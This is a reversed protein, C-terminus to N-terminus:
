ETMGIANLLRGADDGDRRYSHFTEEEAFTCLGSDLVNESRLGALRLQEVAVRPLDLNRGDPTVEIEPFERAFREALDASVEYHEVRVGPGIWAELRETRAGMDVLREIAKMALRAYLGRWGCHCAAILRAVPDFLLIPLCDATKVALLVGPRAAILADTDEFEYVADFPGVPGGLRNAADLDSAEAVVAVGDAHVQRGGVLSWPRDAGNLLREFERRAKEVASRLPQPGGDPLGARTLTGHVLGRGAEIWRADRLWAGDLDLRGGISKMM